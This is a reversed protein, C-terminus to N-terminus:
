KFEHKTKMKNSRLHKIYDPLKNFRRFAKYHVGRQHNVNNTYPAKKKM